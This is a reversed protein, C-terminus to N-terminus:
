KVKKDCTPVSSLKEVEDLLDEVSFSSRIPTEEEDDHDNQAADCMLALLPLSPVIIFFM